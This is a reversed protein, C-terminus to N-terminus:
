LESKIGPRPVETHQPHLELFVLFFIKKVHVETNKVASNVIALVLFSGSHGNVSYYIFIHYM